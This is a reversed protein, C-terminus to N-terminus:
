IEFFGVCNKEKFKNSLVYIFPTRLYYDCMFDIHFVILLCGRRRVICLVSVMPSSDSYM